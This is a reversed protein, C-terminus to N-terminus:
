KFVPLVKTCDYKLNNNNTVRRKHKPRSFTRKARRQREQQMREVRLLGTLQLSRVSSLPGEM